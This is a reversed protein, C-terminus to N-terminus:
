DEVLIHWKPRTHSKRFAKETSRVSLGQKESGDYFLVFELQGKGKKSEEAFMRAITNPPLMLRGMVTELPFKIGTVGNGPEYAKYILESCVISSDTRFDFDFDYPRGSYKFARIVARATDYKSLAPRLVVISDCDASHEITTFLVGEGIAEVVRPPFGHPDPTVSLGYAKAGRMLIEEVSAAGEEDLLKQVDPGNFWAAREEPTGIYMAAHTWFGPIGMNTLYWERRELIIDGPKIEKTFLAIQEATILNREARYVRTDGAWNSIGKQVPFWHKKGTKKVIDFGNQVTLAEGKWRGMKWVARSDSKMGSRLERSEAGAFFGALAEYAAFETAIAVNLFRLKFSSYTGEPLGVDPMSENLMADIDPAREALAIFDMAYRYEMLLAARCINFSGAQTSEPMEMFEEHLMSISDIALYLDCMSRWLRRLEERSEVPLIKNSKEDPFIDSRTSVYGAISELAKRYVVLSASDMEQRQQMLAEEASGPKHSHCACGIAMCALFSLLASKKLM